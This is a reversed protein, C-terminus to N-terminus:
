LWGDFMNNKDTKSMRTDIYKYIKKKFIVYDKDSLKEILRVTRAVILTRSAIVYEKYNKNFVNEDFVFIIFDRTEVNKKFLKHSLLIMTVIGIVKYRAPMSNKLENKYIVLDNM